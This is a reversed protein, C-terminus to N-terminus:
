VSAQTMVAVMDVAAASAGGTSAGLEFLRTRPFAIEMNRLAFDTVPSAMRATNTNIATKAGSM